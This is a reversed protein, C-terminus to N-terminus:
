VLKENDSSYFTHIEYVFIADKVRGKKQLFPLPGVSIDCWLGRVAATAASQTVSSAPTCGISQM